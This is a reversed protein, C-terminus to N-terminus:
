TNKKLSYVTMGRSQNSDKLKVNRRQTKIINDSMMRSLEGRLTAIKIDNLAGHIQSIVLGQEERGEWLELIRQRTTKDSMIEVDELEVTVRKM